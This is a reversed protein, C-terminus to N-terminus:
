NYSNKDFLSIENAEIHDDINGGFFSNYKELFKLKDERVYKRAVSYIERSFNFWKQNSEM